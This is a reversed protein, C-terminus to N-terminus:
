ITMKALHYVPYVHKFGVSYGKLEKFSFGELRKAIYYLDGGIVVGNREACRNIKTCMNVAPGIMDVSKSDTSKMPMVFGYDMSIRYNCCPLKESKMQNCLFERAGIMALSCELSKAIATHDQREMTKPFYYLLSDGVNKIIQGGYEIIIKSMINLFHQYYRSMKQMGLSASIKTSDVMDVLGICYSVAKESFMVCYNSPVLEEQKELQENILSKISEILAEDFLATRAPEKKMPLESM